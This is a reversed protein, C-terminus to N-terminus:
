SNVYVKKMVIPLIPKGNIGTESGSIRDIVDKGEVVRAFGAYEGDFDHDSTLMIMFQAKGTDNNGEIHNLALTYKELKLTNSKGNSMFEGVITSPKQVTPDDNKPSSSAESTLLFKSHNITDITFGNYYESEVLSLFHRVTEPAYEPYTEVVFNGYSETEFTVFIHEPIASSTMVKDVSIPENDTSTGKTNNGSCAVFLSAIILILSLLKLKKM